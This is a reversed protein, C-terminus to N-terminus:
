LMPRINSKLSWVESSKYHIIVISASTAYAPAVHDHALIRTSSLIHTHVWFLNDAATALNYSVTAWVTIYDARAGQAECSPFFARHGLLKSTVHRRLDANRHLWLKCGLDHLNVLVIPGPGLPVNHPDLMLSRVVWLITIWTTTWMYASVTYHACGGFLFRWPGHTGKVCPLNLAWAM